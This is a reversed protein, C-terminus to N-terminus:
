SSIGADEVFVFSCKYGARVGVCRKRSGKGFCLDVLRWEECRGKEGEGLGLQGNGNEGIVYLEGETTLVLMHNEGISFDLIDAGHIDLPIPDYDNSPSPSSSPSQPSSSSPPPFSLEPIISPINTRGWIYLDHGTTLAATLPGSSSLKKIPGTPLSSLSSLQTPVSASNSFSIERGLCSPYREDGWTYVNGKSTLASFTTSNSVLQTIHPLPLVFDPNNRTLYNHLSPYQILEAIKDNGATTANRLYEEPTKSHTGQQQTQTSNKSTIQELQAQLFGDPHGAVKIEEAPSSPDNSIAALCASVSTGLIKISGKAELIRKFTFADEPEDPLDGDFQLQNWANFGCAWLEM